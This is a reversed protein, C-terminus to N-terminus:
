SVNISASSNAEGRNITHVPPVPVQAMRACVYYNGINAPLILLTGALIPLMVDPDFTPKGFKYPYPITIWSSNMMLEFNENRVYASPSSNQSFVGTTSLIACLGWTIFISIFM